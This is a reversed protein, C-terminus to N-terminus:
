ACLSYLAALILSWDGVFGRGLTVGIKVLFELTYFVLFFTNCVEPRSRGKRSPSPLDPSWVQCGRVLNAGPESLWSSLGGNAQAGQFFSIDLLSLNGKFGFPSLFFIELLHIWLAAGSVVYRDQAAGRTHTERKATHPPTLISSGLFDRRPTRTEM